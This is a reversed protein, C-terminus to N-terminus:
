LVLVSVDRRRRRMRGGARLALKQNSATTFNSIFQEGDRNTAVSLKLLIIQKTWLKGKLKRLRSHFQKDSSATRELAAM